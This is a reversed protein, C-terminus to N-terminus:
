KAEDCSGISASIGVGTRPRRRSVSLFRLLPPGTFKNPPEAKDGPFTVTMPMSIANLQMIRVQMLWKTGSSCLICFVIAWLQLMSCKWDVAIEHANPDTLSTIARHTLTYTCAHIYTHIYICVYIYIYIHICICVYM